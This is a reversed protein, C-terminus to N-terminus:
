NFRECHGAVKLEAFPLDLIWSKDSIDGGLDGIAPMDSDAFKGLGRAHRCLHTMGGEVLIKV